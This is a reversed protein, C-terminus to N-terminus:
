LAPPQHPVTTHLHTCGSGLSPFETKPSRSRFTACCLFVQLFPSTGSLLSRTTNPNCDSAKSIQFVPSELQLFDAQSNLVCAGIGAQAPSVLVSNTVGKKAASTKELCHFDSAALTSIHYPSCLLPLTQLVRTAAKRATPM